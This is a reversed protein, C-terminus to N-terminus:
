KSTLYPLFFNCLAKSAFVQLKYKICGPLPDVLFTCLAKLYHPFFRTKCLVLSNKLKTTKNLHSVDSRVVESKSGIDHKTRIVLSDPCSYQSNRYNASVSIQSWQWGRFMLCSIGGEFGMDWRLFLWVLVCRRSPSELLRLGWQQGTM